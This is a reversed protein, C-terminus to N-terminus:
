EVVSELAVFRQHSIPPVFQRILDIEKDIKSLIPQATAILLSRPDDERRKQDSSRQPPFSCRVVDISRRRLCDEHLFAFARRATFHFPLHVSEISNTENDLRLFDKGEASEDRREEFHRGRAFKEGLANGTSGRVFRREVCHKELCRVRKRPPNIMQPLPTWQFNFKVSRSPIPSLLISGVLITM